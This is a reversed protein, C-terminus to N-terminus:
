PRRRRRRRSDGAEALRCRKLGPSALIARHRNKSESRDATGACLGPRPGHVPDDRGPGRDHARRTPEALFDGLQEGFRELWAEAVPARRRRMRLRSPGGARPEAQDSGQSVGAPRKTGVRCGGGRPAATRDLRSSSPLSRRPMRGPHDPSANRADPERAQGCPRSSWRGTSPRSGNRPSSQSRPQRTSGAPMGIARKEAPDSPRPILAELAEAVERPPAFRDDPNLALLRDLMDVLRFPLDRPPGRDPRASGPDAQGAPGDPDHGPFAFAGTLLRYMTCGLSFLDTRADVPKDTVQEPSM